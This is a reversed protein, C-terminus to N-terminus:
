ISSAADTIAAGAGTSTSGFTNLLGDGLATFAVISAVGIISAILVYEIATAGSVDSLFESWKAKIKRM